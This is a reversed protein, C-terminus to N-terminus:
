LVQLNAELKLKLARTLMKKATRFHRERELLIGLMNLACADDPVRAVYHLLCDAAVTIGYMQQVCYVTHKKRWKEQEAESDDLRFYVYLYFDFLSFYYDHIM